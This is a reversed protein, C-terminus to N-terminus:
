EGILPKAPPDFILENKPFSLSELSGNQSVLVGEPTIRKIIVGGPLSDGVGFIQEQGGAARIIVQSDQENEAFIIGVVHLDLMSQKINADQLNDPVHEGFFPTHLGKNLVHKSPSIKKEVVITDHTNIYKDSSIVLLIGSLVHWVILIALLLCTLMPVIPRSLVTKVEAYM